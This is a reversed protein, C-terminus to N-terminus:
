LHERLDEEYMQRRLVDLRNEEFTKLATRLIWTFFIGILYCTLPGLFFFYVEIPDTTPTPITTEVFQVIDGIKGLTFGSVVGGLFGLIRPFQSEENSTIPSLLSATGGGFVLSFIMAM